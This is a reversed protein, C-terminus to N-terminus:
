AGEAIEIAIRCHDSPGWEEPYNLARVSLADAIGRSAFVYDLQRDAMAPPKRSWHWTPVNLSDGPLAAPWPDAQRGNPYDPGVCRLGMTKVRDFVTRYRAAWYPSGDASYGRMLNLDGAAVIRHGRQRGIFAALDSVLRHSSADSYIWTGEDKLPSELEAYLSIAFFPKGSRPTVRAATLTGPSSVALEGAAAKGIPKATLWEVSARDSLAAIATRSKVRSGRESAAWPAPDIEIAPDAQIREAVDPPPRGAEQLLALDIDMDLLCRWPAHKRAMNWSIINM